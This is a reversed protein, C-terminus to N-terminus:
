QNRHGAEHGWGKDNGDLVRLARQRGRCCVLSDLAMRNPMQERDNISVFPLLSAGPRFCPASPTGLISVPPQCLEGPDFGPPQCLEGPQFGPAPLTGRISIRPAPPCPEGSRFGPAPPCPEGPQFGPSVPRLRESASSAPVPLDEPVLHDPLLIDPVDEAISPSPLVPESSRYGAPRPTSASGLGARERM